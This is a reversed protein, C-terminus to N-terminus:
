LPSPAVSGPLEGGGALERQVLEPWAFRGYESDERKDDIWVGEARLQELTADLDAVRYNLMFSADSPKFYKTDADFISWVTEGM